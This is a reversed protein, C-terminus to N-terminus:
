PYKSADKAHLELYAQAIYSNLTNTSAATRICIQYNRYAENLLPNARDAAAEEVKQKFMELAQPGLRQVQPPIPATLYANAVITASHQYLRGIRCQGTTHWLPSRSRQLREFRNKIPELRRKLRQEQAILTSVEGSITRRLFGQLRCEALGFMVRELTAPPAPLVSRPAAWPSTPGNVIIECTVDLAADEIEDPVCKATTHRAANTRQTATSVLIGRIECLSQPLSRAQYVLYQGAGSQQAIQRQCTPNTCAQIARRVAPKLDRVPQFLSAFGLHHEAQVRIADRDIASLAIGAPVPPFVLLSPPVAQVPPSVACLIIAAIVPHPRCRRNM